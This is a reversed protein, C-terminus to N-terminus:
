LYAGSKAKIAMGINKWIKVGIAGDDFSRGLRDITRKAFGPGEFRRADFTSAWALTGRSEGRVKLTTRLKEELDLPEDGSTSCVVIDLGRWNTERLSVVLAPADRHIHVHTDIRGYAPGEAARAAALFTVAPVLRLVDRRTPM